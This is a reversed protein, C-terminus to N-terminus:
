ERWQSLETARGIGLHESIVEPSAQLGDRTGRFVVTGRSLVFFVDGVSLALRFNQEVLLVAVGRARSELIGSRIANVMTPALGETPEDLMILQPNSALARAIALMQQQGGSLNAALHRSRELLVPFFSLAARAHAPGSRGIAQAAVRINEEVTLSGFVRRDEPVWALGRAAIVHPARGDIREGCFSIGGGSLPVIGMIAKLTTSKGAGNRGVLCAIQGTEVELSVGQLVHASGYHAQVANLALV